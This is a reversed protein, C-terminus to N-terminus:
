NSIGAKSLVVFWIGLALEPANAIQHRSKVECSYNQRRFFWDACNKLFKFEGNQFTKLKVKVVETM